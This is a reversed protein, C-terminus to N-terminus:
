RFLVTPHYKNLRAVHLVFDAAEMGEPRRVTLTTEGKALARAADLLDGRWAARKWLPADPPEHGADRYIKVAEDYSEVVSRWLQELRQNRTEAEDLKPGLYFKPQTFAGEKEVWGLSRVYHKKKTDYTLGGSKKSTTKTKKTVM